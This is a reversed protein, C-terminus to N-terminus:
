DSRSSIGPQNSSGSRPLSMEYIGQKPANGRARMIKKLFEALCLLIIYIIYISIITIIGIMASYNKEAIV